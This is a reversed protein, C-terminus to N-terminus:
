VDPDMFAQSQNEIAKGLAKSLRVSPIIQTEDGGDEFEDELAAAYRVMDNKVGKQTLVSHPDSLISVKGDKIVALGEVESIDELDWKRIRADDVIVLTGGDLYTMHFGYRPKTKTRAM